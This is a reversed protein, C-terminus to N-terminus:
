KILNKNLFKNILNSIKLVKKKDLNPFIPISIARDSHKEANKFDGKKFGLNKYYPQLHVPIYHLNVNIKKKRLYNFLNEHLFKCNNKLKIVYLHYSSLVKKERPPLILFNKDLTKNYINAVNNRKKIFKSLKKIQSIGISASVDNMRYNLGLLQQEYQWAQKKHRTFLNKDKTIGHNSFLKLRNYIKKNNTIAAGGEFTTIIKVPHFSFVTIDSWKCSGVKEGKYKAGFSHSADELIKFKYKKSLKFIKDQQTPYGAFHVPVLIKPLRNKKKSFILKKELLNLDINGSLYDIDVFDIKGGLHLACNASAVFTNPTTWLIDDKKFGLASCAIHLASTASNVVATYKAGVKQSILNEFKQTQPGQTLFSSRLTKLVAKIDKNDITQTSYPIM